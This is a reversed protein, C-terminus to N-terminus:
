NIKHFMFDHVNNTNDTPFLCSRPSCFNPMSAKILFDINKRYKEELMCVIIHLKEKRMSVYKVMEVISYM